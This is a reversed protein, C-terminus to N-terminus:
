DLKRLMVFWKSNKSLLGFCTKKREKFVIRSYSQKTQKSNMNESVSTQQLKLDKKKKQKLFTKKLYNEFMEGTRKSHNEKRPDCTPEWSDTNLIHWM